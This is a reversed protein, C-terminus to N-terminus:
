EYKFTTIHKYTITQDSFLDTIVLIETQKTINNYNDFEYTYTASEKYTVKGEIDYSKRDYRSIYQDSVQSMKRDLHYGYQRSVILNSKWASGFLHKYYNYHESVKKDLYSFQIEDEIQDNSKNIIDVLNNDNNNYTTEEDFSHNQNTPNILTKAQKTINHHLFIKRNNISGDQRILSITIINNPDQYDVDYKFHTNNLHQFYEKHIIKGLNDYSYSITEELNGNLDYVYIESLLGKEYTYKRIAGSMNDFQVLKNNKFYETHKWLYDDNKYVEHQISHLKM